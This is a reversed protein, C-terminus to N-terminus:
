EGQTTIQTASEVISWKGDETSVMKIYPRILSNGGELVLISSLRSGGQNYISASNIGTQLFVISAVSGMGQFDLFVIDGALADTIQMSAKSAVIGLKFRHYGYAPTLYPTGSNPGNTNVAGSILSANSVSWLTLTFNSRMFNRMFKGTRDTDFFKLNAEEKVALTNGGQELVIGNQYSSDTEAM